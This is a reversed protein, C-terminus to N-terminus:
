REAEFEALIDEITERTEGDELADNIMDLTEGGQLADELASTTLPIRHDTLRVQAAAPSCM